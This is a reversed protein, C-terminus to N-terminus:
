TEIRAGDCMWGDYYPVDKGDCVPGVCESKAFEGPVALLEILTFRKKKM